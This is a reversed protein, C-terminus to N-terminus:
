AFRVLRGPREDTVRDDDLVQRGAVFTARIGEAEQLLRKGGAPLDAVMHPPKLRLGDHDIVNVDARLGVKLRGRDALGLYDAPDAALMRIARALPIRGQGRDRTWHTLLYTPFSADCIVGVHAGGDSLGLLASPHALMTAVNDYSFETYNYIPFYILRRGDEELLVDYLRAM